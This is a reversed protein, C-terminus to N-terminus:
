IYEVDTIFIQMEFFKLTDIEFIIALKEYFMYMNAFKSKDFNCKLFALLNKRSNFTLRSTKKLHLYKKWM